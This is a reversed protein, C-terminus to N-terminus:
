APVDQFRWVRAGDVDGPALAPDGEVVLLWPGDPEVSRLLRAPVSAAALRGALAKLTVDAGPETREVFTVVAPESM